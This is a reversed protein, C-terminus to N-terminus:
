RPELTALYYYWLERFFILSVQVSKRVFICFNKRAQAFKVAPAIQVVFFICRKQATEVHLM